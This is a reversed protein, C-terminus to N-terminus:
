LLEVHSIYTDSKLNHLKIIIYKYFKNMFFIFTLKKRSSLKYTGVSLATLPNVCCMRTMQGVSM